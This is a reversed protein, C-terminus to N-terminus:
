CSLAEFLSFFSADEAGLIDALLKGISEAVKVVDDKAGVIKDVFGIWLDWISSSEADLLDKLFDGFTGLLVMADDKVGVLKDWMGKFSDIAQTVGEDGLKGIQVGFTELVDRIDAEKVLGMQVAMDALFTVVDQLSQIKYGSVADVVGSIQEGLLAWTGLGLAIPLPAILSGIATVITGLGIFATGLILAAPALAILAGAIKVVLDVKEKDMFTLIEHAPDGVSVHRVYFPCGDLYKGCIQDLRENASTRAREMLKETHTKDFEGYWPEHHAIDEIVYLVHIEAQYLQTLSTVLPLAKEASSSFDTPWLVKKIDM